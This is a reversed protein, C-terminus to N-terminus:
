EKSDTAIETHSNDDIILSGDDKFSPKSAM